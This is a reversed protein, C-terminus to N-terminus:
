VSGPGWPHGTKEDQEGPPWETAVEEASTIKTSTGALLPEVRRQSQHPSLQFVVSHSHRTRVRQPLHAREQVEIETDVRARERVARFRYHESRAVGCLAVEFTGLM